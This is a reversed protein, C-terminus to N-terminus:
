SKLYTRNLFRTNTMYINKEMGSFIQPNEYLDLFKSKDEYVNGEIGMDFKGFTTYKKFDIIADNIDNEKEM